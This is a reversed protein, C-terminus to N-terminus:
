SKTVHSAMFDFSAVVHYLQTTPDFVDIPNGVRKLTAYLGNASVQERLFLESIEDMLDSILAVDGRNWVWIRATGSYVDYDGEAPLIKICVCPYTPQEQQALEGPFVNVGTQQYAGSALIRDRIATLLKNTWSTAM